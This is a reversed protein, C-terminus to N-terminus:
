NRMMVIEEKELVKKRETKNSLRPVEEERPKQTRDKKGKIRREKQSEKRILYRTLWRKIHEERVAADKSINRKQHTKRKERLSSSTGVTDNCGMFGSPPTATAM